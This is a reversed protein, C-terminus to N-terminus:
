KCPPLVEDPPLNVRYTSREPISPLTAEPHPSAEADDDASGDNHTNTIVMPYGQRTHHHHHHHHGQGMPLDPTDLGSSSSSDRRSESAVIGTTTGSDSSLSLRRSLSADSSANSTRRRAGSLTMLDTENTLMTGVHEPVDPLEHSTHVSDPPPTIEVSFGIQGLTTLEISPDIPDVHPLHPHLEQDPSNFVSNPMSSLDEDIPLAMAGMEHPPSVSSPEEEGSHPTVESISMPSPTLGDSDFTPAALYNISIPATKKQCKASEEIIQSRAHSSIHNNNNLGSTSEQVEMGETAEEAIDDDGHDQDFIANNADVSTNHSGMNDSQLNVHERRLESLRPNRQGSSSSSSSAELVQDMHEGFVDNTFGELSEQQQPIRSRNNNNNSSDMEVNDGSVVDLLSTDHEPTALPATKPVSQDGDGFGSPGQTLTSPRQPQLSSAGTVDISVAEM